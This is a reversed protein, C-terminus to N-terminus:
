DCINKYKEPICVDPNIALAQKFMANAESCNGKLALIYGSLVEKRGKAYESNILELLAEAPSIMNEDILTEVADIRRRDLSIGEMKKQLEDPDEGSTFDFLSQLQDEVLVNGISSGM